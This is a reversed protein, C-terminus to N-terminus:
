NQYQINEKTILPYRIIADGDLNEKHLSVSSIQHNEYSTYYLIQQDINYCDSYITIEYRDNGLGACGRQQDVSHLIHFFQSVSSMEDDNSLSNLKTFAAKAFRSESSLDGPLGIAGMGRSYEQFKITPAFNNVPPQASLHQYNNLQLLQENFPPNNTLIGIPNDYVKLGDKTSEVTICEQNDKIIWHLEAVPLQESFSINRFSMNDLLKRAEAVTACQGLIWQIFEFQSVNDKDDIHDFYVANGVFNLGAAALGKENVADYPLPTGEAVYAICLIAYHSNIPTVERFNFPFNRPIIVIEEGYSMDYDFNRGFYTDKTTYTAATCM